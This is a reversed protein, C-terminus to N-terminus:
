SMLSLTPIILDLNEEYDTLDVIINSYSHILDLGNYQPYNPDKLIIRNGEKGEVTLILFTNTELRSEINFIVEKIDYFTHAEFLPYNDIIITKTLLDKFKLYKSNYALLVRM